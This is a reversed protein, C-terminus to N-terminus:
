TSKDGTRKATTNRSSQETSRTQKPADHWLDGEAADVAAIAERATRKIDSIDPSDAIDQLADYMERAAERLHHARHLQRVAEEGLFKGADTLDKKCLTCIMAM